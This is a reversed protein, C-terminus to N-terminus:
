TVPRGASEMGASGGLAKTYVLEGEKERAFVQATSTDTFDEPRLSHPTEEEQFAGAKLLREFNARDM